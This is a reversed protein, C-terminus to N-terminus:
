AVRHHDSVAVESVPMVKALTMLILKNNNEWKVQYANFGVAGADVTYENSRARAIM